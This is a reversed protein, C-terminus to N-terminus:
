TFVYDKNIWTPKAWVAASPLKKILPTHVRTRTQETRRKKDTTSKDTKLEKGHPPYGLLSGPVEQSLTPATPTGTTGNTTM